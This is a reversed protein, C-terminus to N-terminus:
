EKKLIINNNNKDKITITNNFIDLKINNTKKIADTGDILLTADNNSQNKIYVKIPDNAESSKVIYGSYINNKHKKDIYLYLEEKDNIWMGTIFENRLNTFKCSTNYYYFLFLIIVAIFAILLHKM